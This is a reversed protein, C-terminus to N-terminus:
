ADTFSESEDLPFPTVVPNGSEDASVQQVRLSVTDLLVQCRQALLRGREYLTVTEDLGLGEGELREVISELEALAAEFPMDEVSTM